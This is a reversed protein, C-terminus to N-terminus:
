GADVHLWAKYEDCLSRIRRIDASNTGIKGSNVEGCSVSVICARNAVKLANELKSFDTRWPEQTHGVQQVSYRGLGLLSAAKLISPHAMCSLIQIEEIGTAVCAAALGRDAVQPAGRCQFLYERGCAMGYLNSTSSGPTFSGTWLESPGKSNIDLYLLEALMSIARNEVDTAVTEMPLRVALCEDLTSVVYDALRAAPTVGGTVFGFYRPSLSSSSVAPVIDALIHETTVELGLGNSPLRAPMRSVAHSLIATTPLVDRDPASQLVELLGENTVSFLKPFLAKENASDM